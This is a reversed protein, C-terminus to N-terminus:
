SRGLRGLAALGRDCNQVISVLGSGAFLMHPLNAYLHTQKRLKTMSNGFWEYRALLESVLCLYIRQCYLRNNDNNNDM